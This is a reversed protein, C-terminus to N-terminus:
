TGGGLGDLCTELASVVVAYAPWVLPGSVNLGELEVRPETASVMAGLAVSSKDRDFKIGVEECAVHSKHDVCDPSRGGISLPDRYLGVM